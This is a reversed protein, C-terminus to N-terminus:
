RSSLPSDTHMIKNNTTSGHNIAGARRAKNSINCHVATYNRRNSMDARLAAFLNVCCALDDCGAKDVDVGMIIALRSPVALHTRRAPMADGRDDHAIAANAKRRRFLVLMVPEDAQHLTNLIDGAGCQGLPHFPIPLGERFIQIRKLATRAGYINARLNRM